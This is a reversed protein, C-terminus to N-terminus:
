QNTRFNTNSHNQDVKHTYTERMNTSEKLITSNIIKSGTDDFIQCSMEDLLYRCKSSNHGQDFYYEKIGVNLKLLKKKKLIFIKSFM